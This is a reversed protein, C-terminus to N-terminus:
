VYAANLRGFLRREGARRGQSLQRIVGSNCKFSTELNKPASL